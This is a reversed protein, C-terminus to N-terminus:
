LQSTTSTQSVDMYMSLRASGTELEQFQSSGPSAYQLSDFVPHLSPQSCATTFHLSCVMNKEVKNGKSRLVSQARMKYREFEDKLQYLEQQFDQSYPFSPPLSSLELVGRLLATM